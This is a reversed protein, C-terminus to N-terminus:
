RCQYQLTCRGKSPDFATGLPCEFYWSGIDKCVFYSKCTVPNAFVGNKDKCFAKAAAKEVLTKDPNILKSTDELEQYTVPDIFRVVKDSTYLAIPPNTLPNSLPKLAYQEAAGRTDLISIDACNAFEEPYSASPATCDQLNYKLKYQDPIGPPNCSNASIWYWQLVCASREGDCVLDEPLQYYMTYETTSPDSPKTYFWEEGPSQAQPINAQKLVHEELCEETLQAKESEEFPGKYM